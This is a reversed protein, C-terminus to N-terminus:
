GCVGFNVIYICVCYSCVSLRNESESCACIKLFIMIMCNESSEVIRETM